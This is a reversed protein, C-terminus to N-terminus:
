LQSEKKEYGHSTAACSLFLLAPASVGQRRNGHHRSKDVKLAISIPTTATNRKSISSVSITFPRADSKHKNNNIPTQSQQPQGLQVKISALRGSQNARALAHAPSVGLGWSCVSWWGLTSLTDGAVWACIGLHNPVEATPM